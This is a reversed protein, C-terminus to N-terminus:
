VNECREIDFYFRFLLCIEIKETVSGFPAVNQGLLDSLRDLILEFCLDDLM